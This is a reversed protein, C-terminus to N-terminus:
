RGATASGTYSLDALEARAKEAPELELNVRGAVVGFGVYSRVYKTEGAALTFSLSKEVETAASAVYNGAPRDVFFFGGNQSRGVVQNNLRIDSSIVAGVMSSSRYFYIRGEGAKISPISSAMEAHKIGSACGALLGAAAALVIAKLVTRRM